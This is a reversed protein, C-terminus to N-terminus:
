HGILREINLASTVSAASIPPSPRTPSSTVASSSVLTSGLSSSTHSSGTSPHPSTSPGTTTVLPSPTTQPLSLRKYKARRNKFWFQINKPELKPFKQRYQLQNLDETYRVIQSHTPHTNMTFWHELRPVETMPDIFTRSRRIRRAEDAEPSEPNNQGSSSTYSAPYIGGNNGNLGNNNGYFSSPMNPPGSSSQSFYKEYYRDDDSEDEEDEDSLPDDKHGSSQSSGAVHPSTELPNEEHGSTSNSRRRKVPAGRMSLDLTRSYQSSNEDTEMLDRSSDTEDERGSDEEDDIRDRLGNSGKGRERMTQIGSSGNVFKLEQRKHAARANKFWYVVNNVDLPKRGRRSELSNLEKVYIQIQSRSPHQNEGFWKHLKPLELEPDFSTRIRTRVFQQQPHHSSNHGGTERASSPSGCPGNLLVHDSITLREKGHTGTSHHHPSSDIEVTLPHHGNSTSPPRSRSSNTSGAVAAQHQHAQAAATLSAVQRYHNFVQQLYWQDFKKRTEEPIDYDSGSTISRGSSNNNNNSSSTNNGRAGCLSSLLHQPSSTM